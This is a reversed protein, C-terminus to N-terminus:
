WWKKSRHMFFYMYCGISPDELYENERKVAEKESILDGSYECILDGHYFPRTSVVGRGKGEVEVVKLGDETKSTLREIM